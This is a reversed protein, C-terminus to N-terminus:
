SGGGMKLRLMERLAGTEAEQRALRIRLEDRESKVEDLEAELQEIRDVKKQRYKKAAINNRQRKVLTDQDDDDADDGSPSVRKAPPRGRKKPHSVPASAPLPAPLPQPDPEQSNQPTPTISAPSASTFPSISVVTSGLVSTLDGSAGCSSLDSLPSNYRDEVIGLCITDTTAHM